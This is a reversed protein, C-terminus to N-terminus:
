SLKPLPHEPYYNTHPLSPPATPPVMKGNFSVVHEDTQREFDSRHRADSAVFALHPMSGGWRGVATLHDRVRRQVSKDRYDDWIGYGLVVMDAQAGTSRYSRLVGAVSLVM